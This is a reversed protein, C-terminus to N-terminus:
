SCASPTTFSETVDVGFCFIAPRSPTYSMGDVVVDYLEDKTSGDPVVSRV